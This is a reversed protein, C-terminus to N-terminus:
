SRLGSRGTNSSPVCGTKRSPTPGLHSVIGGAGTATEEKLKEQEAEGTTPFLDPM